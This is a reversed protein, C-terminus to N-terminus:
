DKAKKNKVCNVIIFPLHFLTLLTFAISILTILYVWYGNNTNLIPLGEMPPKSLFLYNVNYISLVGNLWSCLMAFAGIYMLNRLYVKITLKVHNFLVIYFGFAILAAHYIFYRYVQIDNLATGDSPVFLAVLAGICMSPSMFGLIKQKTEDKKVFFMLATILFFQFGCLHFPLFEPDYYMVGQENPKMGIIIKVIENILVVFYIFTLNSKFSFNFKKNLILYVVIFVICFLILIIHNSKFLGEQFFSLFNM